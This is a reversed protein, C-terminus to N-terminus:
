HKMSGVLTYSIVKFTGLEVHVNAELKQRKSICISLFTDCVSTQKWSIYLVKVSLIPLSYFSQKKISFPNTTM